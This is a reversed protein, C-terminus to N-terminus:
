LLKTTQWSTIMFLLADRRHVSAIKLTQLAHRECVTQTCKGTEVHDAQWKRIAVLSEVFTQCQTACEYCNIEAMRACDSLNESTANEEIRGIEMATWWNSASSNATSLLVGNFMNLIQAM